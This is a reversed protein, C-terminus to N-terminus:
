DIRTFELTGGAGGLYAMSLSEDSLALIAFYLVEESFQVRIVRADPFAQFEPQEQAPNEVYNWTGRMTADDEGEYHDTVTGDSGFTRIFRADETSQWTGALAFAEDDTPILAAAEETNEADTRLTELAPMQNWAFWGVIALALVIIIGIRVNMNM